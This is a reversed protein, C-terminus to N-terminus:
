LIIRILNNIIKTKHRLDYIKFKIFFKAYKQKEFAHVKLMKQVLAWLPIM